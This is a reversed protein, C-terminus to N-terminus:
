RATLDAREIFISKTPTIVSCSRQAVAFLLYEALERATQEIKESTSPFRAYNILGIVVGEEVSGTSVYDAPQISVCLGRLVFQSCADRIASLKGAICVRVDFAPCEAVKTKMSLAAPPM